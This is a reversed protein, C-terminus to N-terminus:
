LTGEIERLLKLNTAADAVRNGTPVATELVCFGTYGIDAIAELCGKVDVDGKGLYVKDKIHIQCIRDKGLLRIERPVDFHGMNTSNGVDYWIKVAPSGVRDLIHLNDEASLANEIGLIVGSQEALPALERLAAITGDIDSPNNLGCKFFSALEVMGANLTKTIRIAERVWTRALPSSKLCDRHLIELYTSAIGVQTTASSHLIRSQLKGDSLLLRDDGTPKGVSVQIADFGLRKAMTFAEPSSAYGLIVDMIGVKLHPRVRVAFPLSCTLSLAGLLTDRRTCIM